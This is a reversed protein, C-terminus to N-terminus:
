ADLILHVQERM